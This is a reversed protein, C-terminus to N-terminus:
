LLALQKVSLFEGGFSGEQFACGAESCRVWSRFSKSVILVSFQNIIRTEILFITQSM